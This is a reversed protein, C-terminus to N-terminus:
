IRRFQWKLEYVGVTQSQKEDYDAWEKESLDVEKFTSGKETKAIWGNSPHFDIPEAGRCEFGAILQFKNSDSYPKITDPLIDITNQRRCLKCKIVLNAKGRKDPIAQKESQELSVINDHVEGCAGCKLKFYWVFAVDTPALSELNELYACLELGIKVM